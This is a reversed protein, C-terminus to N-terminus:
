VLKYQNLGRLPSDERKWASWMRQLRFDIKSSLNYRPDPAGVSALTQRIARVAGEVTRARVKGGSPAIAGSRYRIAFIQLLAIPDELQSLLHDLALQVCFTRWRGWHCAAAAYASILLARSTTLAPTHELVSAAM